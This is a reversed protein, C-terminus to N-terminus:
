IVKEQIKSKINEKDFDTEDVLRTSM